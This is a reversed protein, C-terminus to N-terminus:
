FTHDVTPVLLYTDDDNPILGLMQSDNRGWLWRTLDTKLAGSRGGNTIISLWNTDTGVQTPAEVNQDDTTTLVNNVTTTLTRTNLGLEGYFNQGWSWLTDDDKLALTHSRSVSIADWNTDTGVQIPVNTTNSGAGGGLQGGADSGWSWLTGDTRLAIAFASGLDMHEYVAGGTVLGPTSRDGNFMGATFDGGYGLQGNSNSGWSYLEGAANLALSFSEGAVVKVWTTDTGIQTPIQDTATVAAYGLAVEDSDGWSWLTGDTKIALSHYRGTSVTLWNTDTGVQTPTIIEEFDLNGVTVSTGTIDSLLHYRNAGWGFLEGNSNIALTAQLGPSVVAWQNSDVLLAATTKVPSSGFGLESLANNGWAWLTDDTTDGTTGNDKFGFFHSSSGGGMLLRWNQASVSVSVTVTGGNGDSIDVAFNDATGAADNPQYSLINNTVSAVGTTAQTSVSVSLTDDDADAATSLALWDITSIVGTDYLASFNIATPDINTNAGSSFNISAEALAVGLSSMIADSLEIRFFTSAPLNNTPTFTLLFQSDDYSVTGDVYQETDLNKLAFGDTLSQANMSQSFQVTIVGTVPLQSAQTPSTQAIQPASLTTFSYNNFVQAQADGQADRFESGVLLNVQANAQYPTSPTVVLTFTNANYLYTYQIQMPGNLYINGAILSENIHESFTLTIAQTLSVNTAGNIPSIETVSFPSSTDVDEEETTFTFSYETLSAGDESQIGSTLTITYMTGFALSEDMQFSFGSSSVNFSGSVVNNALDSIIVTSANITSTNIPNNFYFEILANVSEGESNSQPRQQSLSLTDGSNTGDGNGGDGNNDPSPQQNGGNDGGTGDNNDDGGDDICAALTVLCLIIMLNKLTFTNKLSLLLPSLM